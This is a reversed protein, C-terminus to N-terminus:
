NYTPTHKELVGWAVLRKADKTGLYIDPMTFDDFKVVQFNQPDMFEATLPYYGKDLKVIVFILKYAPPLEKKWSKWLIKLYTYNGVREALDANELPKKKM